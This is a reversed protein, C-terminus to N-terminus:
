DDGLLSEALHLAAPLEVSAERWRAPIGSLGVRCGALAGALFGLADTAYGANVAAILCREFDDPSHLFCYCAAPLAETVDATTSIYRLGEEVDLDLLSALNELIGAIEEDHPRAAAGLAVVFEEARGPDLEGAIMGNLARDLVHCAAISSPHRHTIWASEELDGARDEPAQEPLLIMRPLDRCAAGVTPFELGSESRPVGQQLRLASRYTAHVRSRALSLWDVLRRAIDDGDFGRCAVLSHLTLLALQTYDGGAGRGGRGSETMESVIGWEVEIEDTSLGSVPWGLADGVLAGALAGCRQERANGNKSRVKPM